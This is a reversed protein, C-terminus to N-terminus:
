YFKAEGLPRTKFRRHVWYYQSPCRRVWSEIHQNLRATADEISDHEHASADSGAPSSEVLSSGVSSAPLNPFDELPAGVEVSYHGTKPDWQAFIPLVPLKWKRAIQATATQTAAPVGFFPVFVAGTRGFDMDPLYYIPLNQNIYRLLARIGQKRSILHVTNFRSRGLRVLEDIDPDRQPSYMTAGEPGVYTLRSAAADLGIFHPALLMISGHKAILATVQEHGKCSILECVQEASGFWFVSRDIFSQVFARLHDRVIQKRESASLDSFCLDINVRVINVRRRAILRFAHTFFAGIRLRTPTSCNALWQFLGILVRMKFSRQKLADLAHAWESTTAKDPVSADSTVADKAQPNM